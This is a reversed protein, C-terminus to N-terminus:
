PDFTNHDHVILGVLDVIVGLGISSLIFFSNATAL